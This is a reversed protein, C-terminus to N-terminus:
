HRDSGPAWPCAGSRGWGSECACRRSQGWRRCRCGAEWHTEETKFMLERGRLGELVGVRTREALNQVCPGRGKDRRSPQSSSDRRCRVCDGRACWCSGRQRRGSIGGACGCWTKVSIFSSIKSSFNNNQGLCGQQQQQPRCGEVGPDDSGPDSGASVCWRSSRTWRTVCCCLQVRYM